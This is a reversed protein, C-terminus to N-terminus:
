SLLSEDSQAIWGLRGGDILAGAEGDGRVLKVQEIWRAFRRQILDRLSLRTIKIKASPFLDIGTDFGPLTPLSMTATHKHSHCLKELVGAM